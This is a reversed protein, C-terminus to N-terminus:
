TSRRRLWLLPCREGLEYGSRYSDRLEFDESLTAVAEEALPFSYASASDRYSDMTLVEALPFGTRQALEAPDPVHECYSQWIDSLRVSRTAVDSILAMALRWKFVHFNGIRRSWLADFVQAVAEAQELVCYLRLAFHANPRLVRAISRSFNRYGETFDFMSLCGDGIALEFSAAPLALDLWDGRVARRTATDGPWVQAIMSESQDVAVLRLPPTFDANAFEPTVGLLLTELRGNAAPELEHVWTKLRAVDEACPRL